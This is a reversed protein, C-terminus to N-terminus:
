LARRKFDLVLQRHARDIVELDSAMRELERALKVDGVIGALARKLRARKALPEADLRDIVFAYLELTPSSM